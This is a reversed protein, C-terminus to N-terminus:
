RSCSCVMEEEIAMVIFLIRQANVPGILPLHHETHDKRPVWTGEQLGRETWGKAFNVLLINTTNYGPLGYSLSFPAETFTNKPM